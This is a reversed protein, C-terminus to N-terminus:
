SAGSSRRRRRLAGRAPRGRASHSNDFLISRRDIGGSGSAGRRGCVFITIFYCAAAAGFLVVSVLFVILGDRVSDLYTRVVVLVVARREVIEALGHIRELLQFPGRPAHETVHVWDCFPHLVFQLVRM